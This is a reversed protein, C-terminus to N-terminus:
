EQVDMETRSYQEDPGVRLTDFSRCHCIIRPSLLRAHRRDLLVPRGAHVIRRAVALADPHRARLRQEERGPLDGVVRLAAHLVAAVELRLRARDEGRDLREDLGPPAREVADDLDGGVDGVHAVTRVEPGHALLEEAGLARGRRHHLDSRFLTTYPFLTSRPPRRIM